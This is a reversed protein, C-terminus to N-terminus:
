TSPNSTYPLVDYKLFSNTALHQHSMGIIRDIQFVSIPLILTQPLALSGDGFSGSCFPSSAHSL